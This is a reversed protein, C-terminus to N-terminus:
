YATLIRRQGDATMIVVEEPAISIVKAGNTIEGVRVIENNILAWNENEDSIIGNLVFSIQPVGSSADQRGSVESLGKSGEVLAIEAKLDTYAEAELPVTEQTLSIDTSVDEPKFIFLNVVLLGIIALTLLVTSSVLTRSPERRHSNYRQTLSESGLGKKYVGERLPGAIKSIYESPNPVSDSRGKEAKKLADQIISM